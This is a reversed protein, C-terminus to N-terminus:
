IGGEATVGAYSAGTLVPSAGTYIDLRTVAAAM